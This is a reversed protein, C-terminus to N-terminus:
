RNKINAINTPKDMLINLQFCLIFIYILIIFFTYMVDAELVATPKNFLLKFINRAM